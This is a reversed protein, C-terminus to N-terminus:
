GKFAIIKGDKKVFVPFYLDMFKAILDQNKEFDQDGEFLLGQKLARLLIMTTYDLQKSLQEPMDETNMGLDFGPFSQLMQLATMYVPDPEDRKLASTLLDLYSANSELDFFDTLDQVKLDSGEKGKELFFIPLIAKAFAKSRQTWMDKTGSILDFLTAM